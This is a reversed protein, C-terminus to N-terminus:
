RKEINTLNKHESPLKGMYRRYTRSFYSLNSFGCANAAESVSKGEDMLRAAGHCRCLSIYEFVTMGMSAKFTRSLVYKNVFVARAIGDLTLPESYHTRIYRIADKITSLSPSAGKKDINLCFHKRLFILLALMDARLNAVRCSDGSDHFHRSLTEFLVFFDDNKIHSHFSLQTPDIGAEVCFAADAILCSYQMTSDTGTYHLVGSGVIVCDGARIAIREGDLMVYGEGETCFQLELNEHWNAEESRLVCTRTISENLIFPIHDRFHLYEEYREKM